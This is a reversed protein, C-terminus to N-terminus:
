EGRDSKTTLAAIRAAQREIIQLAMQRARFDKIRNDGNLWERLTIQQRPGGHTGGNGILSDLNPPCGDGSPHNPIPRGDMTM